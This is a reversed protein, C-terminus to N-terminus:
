PQAVARKRYSDDVIEEVKLPKTLFGLDRSYDILRQIFAHDSTTLEDSWGLRKRAEAVVVAPPIVEGNAATVAELKFEDAIVKSSNMPM